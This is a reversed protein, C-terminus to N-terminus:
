LRLVALTLGTIDSLTFELDNTGYQNYVRPRFPGFLVDGTLAPITITRDAISLDEDVFGPTNITVVCDGAGTKRGHFFVKGNNDVQYTDSVNLQGAGAGAVHYTPVLGDRDIQEPTLRNNAM